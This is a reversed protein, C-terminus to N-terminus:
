MSVQVDMIVLFWVYLNCNIALVRSDRRYSKGLSTGIGVFNCTCNYGAYIGNMLLRLTAWM